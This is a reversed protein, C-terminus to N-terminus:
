RFYFGGKVIFGADKFLNRAKKKGSLRLVIIKKEGPLM